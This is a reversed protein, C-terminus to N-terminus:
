QSTTFALVGGIVFLALAVAGLQAVTVALAFGALISVLTMRAVVGDGAGTSEHM